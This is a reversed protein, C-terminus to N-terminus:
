SCWSRFPIKVSKKASYRSYLRNTCTPLSHIHTYAFPLFWKCEALWWCCEWLCAWHIKRLVITTQLPIQDQFTSHSLGLSLINLSKDVPGCLSRMLIKFGNVSVKLRKMRVECKWESYSIVILWIIICVM